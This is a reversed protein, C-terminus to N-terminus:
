RQAGLQYYMYFSTTTLRGTTWRAQTPAREFYTVVEKYGGKKAWALADNGVSLFRQIVFNICYHEVAATIRQSINKSMYAYRPVLNKSWRQWPLM